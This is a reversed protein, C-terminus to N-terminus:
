DDQPTQPLIGYIHGRAEEAAWFFKFYFYYVRPHHLAPALRGISTASSLRGRGRLGALPDPARTWWFPIALKSAQRANGWALPPQM